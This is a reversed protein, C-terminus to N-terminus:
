QSMKIIQVKKIAGNDTTLIKFRLHNREIVDGEIPFDKIENLLYGALVDEEEPINTYFITNLRHLTIKGDCIIETETIKEVLSENNLDTEDEIEFGLMVELIDEHTLIGETGGYEELVIAMHKKEKTMKNLVLDISHFEYVILPDNDCFAELPREPELSWAIINKSHFVAIIDDINEGYVPYRTFPNQMVIERAEEFTATSSLAVINIRPTKMADKVDLEHFDMVGKIRYSEALNFAGEIDAIDVMTRLEEKSISGDNVQNKSLARTLAGTLSNLIFTIPKFIIVFFRIVPYVLFAIRDPFAAAISKPIVESFVIIIVTLIASALGLNFGYQIAITTVLTPLLINAINNGILITTIFESPKSVLKLLNEAKKDHNSARSQLRMKNTATLATESGSFFFSVFLLFIIAFIM